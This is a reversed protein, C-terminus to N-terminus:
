IKESNETEKEESLDGVTKTTARIATYLLFVHRLVTDFM